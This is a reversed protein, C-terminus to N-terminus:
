DTRGSRALRLRELVREVDAVTTGVEEAPNAVSFAKAGSTDPEKPNPGLAPVLRLRLTEFAGHGREAIMSEFKALADALEDYPSLWAERSKTEAHILYTPREHSPSPNNSM